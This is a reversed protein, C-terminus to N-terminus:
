VPDNPSGGQGFLFSTSSLFREGPRLVISPFLPQHVADPFHQTELCLGRRYTLPSRGPIPSKGLFNGSYFQIGPETTWIEMVRGSSLLFLRAALTEGFQNEEGSKDLVFNHDYGQGFVLQPEEDEIREGIRFPTRFDFPTGKVERIEGTPILSADIPTFSEANIMLYHDLISAEGGLNFYSHNCVNILTVRDSVAQTEQHLGGQDSLSYKVTLEVRGPYGDEGDNLVVQFVAENESAKIVSFVRRMMSGLGGHLHNDGDNLALQYNQGDLEFHGKAIRNAVRGILAGMEAQGKLYDQFAPYGLVVDGLYGGADPTILEVLRAGLNCFTAELGNSSRLTLCKVDQGEWTGEFKKPNINM